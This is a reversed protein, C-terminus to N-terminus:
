RTCGKDVDDKKVVRYLATEQSMPLKSDNVQVSPMLEVFEFSLEILQYKGNVIVPKEIRLVETLESKLMLSRSLVKGNSNILM